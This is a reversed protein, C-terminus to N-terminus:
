VHFKDSISIFVMVIMAHWTQVSAPHDKNNWTKQYKVGHVSTCLQQCKSFATGWDEDDLSGILTFNNWFFM